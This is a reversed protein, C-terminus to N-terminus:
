ADAEDSYDDHLPYSGFQGSSERRFHGLGQSGDQDHDELEKETPVSKGSKPAKNQSRILAKPKRKKLNRGTRM